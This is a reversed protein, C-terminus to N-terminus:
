RDIGVLEVADGALLALEAAGDDDSDLTAILERGDLPALGAERWALALRDPEATDAALGVELVGRDDLGLLDDRGDGDFDAIALIQMGARTVAAVPNSASVCLM